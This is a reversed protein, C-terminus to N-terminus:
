SSVGRAAADAGLLTRAKDCEWAFQIEPVMFDPLLYDRNDPGTILCYGRPIASRDDSSQNKESICQM